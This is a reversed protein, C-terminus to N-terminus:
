RFDYLNRRTRPGKPGDRKAQCELCLEAYPMAALRAEGLDDGCDECLGFDDPASAIKRLAKCIRALVMADHRNRDSAISQNMENLPQEDEDGGVKADDTRNPEIRKPGKGRLEEKLALLRKQLGQIKAPTMATM